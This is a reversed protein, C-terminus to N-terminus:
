LMDAPIFLLGLLFVVFSIGFLVSATQWPYFVGFLYSIGVGVVIAVFAFVLAIGVRLLFRSIDIGLFRVIKTLLTGM